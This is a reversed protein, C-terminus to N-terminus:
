GQRCTIVLRQVLHACLVRVCACDRVSLSVRSTTSSFRHLTHSLADRMAAYPDHQPCPGCGDDFIADVGWEGVYVDADNQEFGCSGPRKPQGAAYGLCTLPGVSTYIGVSLGRGHLYDTLNKMGSPFVAPDELM